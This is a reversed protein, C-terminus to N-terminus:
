GRPDEKFWDGHSIIYEQAVDKIDGTMVYIWYKNFGDVMGPADITARQYLTPVGELRDLRSLLWKYLVPDPQWFADVVIRNTQKGVFLAPFAGLNVMTLNAQIVKTGLHQASGFHRSNGGGKRLTGYVLFPLHQIKNM